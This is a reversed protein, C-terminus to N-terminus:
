PNVGVEKKHYHSKGFWCVGAYMPEYIEASKGRVIMAEKFVSNADDFSVVPISDKCYLYDHIVAEYHSRSGWLEYVIPVRPVSALDTIFGTPVIITCKLIDSEYVLPEHLRWKLDDLDELVLVSLFQSM